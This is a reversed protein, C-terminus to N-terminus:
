PITCVEAAVMNGTTHIEIADAGVVEVSGVLHHEDPLAGM